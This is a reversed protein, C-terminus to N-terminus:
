EAPKSSIAPASTEGQRASKGNGILIGATTTALSLGSLKLSEDHLAAGSIAMGVGCVIVALMGILKPWAIV